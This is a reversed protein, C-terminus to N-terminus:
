QGRRTEALAEYYRRILEDYKQVFRDHMSQIVAERDRDPLNGWGRGVDGLRGGVPRQTAGPKDDPGSSTGDARASEGEGPSETDRLRRGARRSDLQQGTRRGSSQMRRATAIADDLDAIIQSQIQQTQAGADLQATLRRYSQEMNRLVRVFVADSDTGGKLRRVLDDRQTDGEGPPQPDGASAGGSVQGAAPAPRAAVLLGVFLSAAVFRSLVSRGTPRM